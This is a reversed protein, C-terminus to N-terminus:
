VNVLEPAIEALAGLQKRLLRLEEGLEGIVSREPVERVLLVPAGYNDAAQLNLTSTRIRHGPYLTLPPTGIVQLGSVADALSYGLSGLFDYNVTLSAAQVAPTPQRVYITTADDAVLQVARNVVTADTVLTVLFSLLEWRARGPVTVTAEAGAAPDGATTVLLFSEAVQEGILGRGLEVSV